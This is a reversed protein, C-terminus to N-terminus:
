AHVSLARIAADDPALRELVPLWARARIRQGSHLLQMALASVSAALDPPPDPRKLLLRCLREADDFEGLRAFARVLRSMDHAQLRVAPRALDLYRRYTEHKLALTPLGQGPLRFILHAARHFDDSAPQHRTLAFWARLTTEDHPRLRAAERWAASAEGFRMESILRKARAVAATYRSEDAGGAGSPSPRPLRVRGAALALGMLLAGTLLGGLHAMYAVGRGGLWHQLLETAVWAPLLILAPARVTNFYFVFQYFFRIRRLRYMVAYMGMLASVAGSAGLGLGGSGAYAWAAMAGAGLAGLLYFLLFVARGLALEVSFGFLLLFVMNGLLHGASGHLFAATLWTVPRWPAGPDFNMAWRETFPAPWLADLRARESQWQAHRADQAEIVHGARLRAMFPEARHMLVLLPQYAQHQYMQRAVPLQPSATDQLWQMFAPLELAPLASQAYYAAARQQGREQARQPGWYVLVNIAILLLVLWPPRRWSPRSELPIALFM